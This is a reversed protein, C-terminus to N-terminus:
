KKTITKPVMKTVTPTNSPKVVAPKTKVASLTKPVSTPVKSGSLNKGPSASPKNTKENSTTVIQKPVPKEIKKNINVSNIKSNKQVM